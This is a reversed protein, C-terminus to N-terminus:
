GFHRNARKQQSQGFFKENTLSNHSVYHTNITVKRPYALFLTIFPTEKDIIGTSIFRIEIIANTVLTTENSTEEHLWSVLSLSIASLHMKEELKM